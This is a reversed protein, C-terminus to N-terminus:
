KMGTLIEERRKLAAVKDELTEAALYAAYTEKNVKRYAARDANTRNMNLPNNRVRISSASM